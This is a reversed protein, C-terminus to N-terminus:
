LINPWKEANHIFPNFPHNPDLYELIFLNDEGFKVQDM